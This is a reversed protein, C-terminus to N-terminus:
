VAFHGSASICLPRDAVTVGIARSDHVESCADRLRSLRPRPVVAIPEGHLRHPLLELLPAFALTGCPCVAHAPALHTRTLSGVLTSGIAKLLVPDNVM